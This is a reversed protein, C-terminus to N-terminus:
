QNSQSIFETPIHYFRTGSPITRFTIKKVAGNLLIHKLLNLCVMEAFFQDRLCLVEWETFRQVNVHKVSNGVLFLKEWMSPYIARTMFSALITLLPIRISPTKQTRLIKFLASVIKVATTGDIRPIATEQSSEHRQLTAEREHREEVSKNAIPSLTLLFPVLETDSQLSDNYLNNFDKDM